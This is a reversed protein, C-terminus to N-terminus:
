SWRNESQEFRRCPNRGVGRLKFHSQKRLFYNKPIDLKYYNQKAYPSNSTISGSNPNCTEDSTINM